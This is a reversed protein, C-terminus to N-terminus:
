RSEPTHTRQALIEIVEARSRGPMERQAEVVWFEVKQRDGLAMRLLAGYARGTLHTDQELPRSQTHMAYRNVTNVRAQAKAKARERAPKIFFLWYLGAFIILAFAAFWAFM